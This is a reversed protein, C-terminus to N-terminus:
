IIGVTTLSTIFHNGEGEEPLLIKTGIVAWAAAACVCLALM